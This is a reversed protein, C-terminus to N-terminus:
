SAADIQKLHIHKRGLSIEFSDGPQLGLQQTYAPGIFLSGNSQVRIRYTATRGKGNSKSSRDDLKVGKAEILANYFKLLNVREHGNKTTTSYGCARAKKERGAKGLEKVKQLLAKGTLPKDAKHEKM